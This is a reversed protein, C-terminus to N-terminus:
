VRCFTEEGCLLLPSSLDQSQMNADGDTPATALEAANGAECISGVGFTPPMVTSWSLDTSGEGRRRRLEAISTGQGESAAAACAAQLPTPVNFLMENQLGLRKMLSESGAASNMRRLLNHMHEVDASASSGDGSIRLSLLVLALKFQEFSMEGDGGAGQWACGRFILQLGM